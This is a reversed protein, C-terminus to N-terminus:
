PRHARLGSRRDRSTRDSPPPSSVSPLGPSPLSSPICRLSKRFIIAAVDATVWTDGTDEDMYRLEYYKATEATCLTYHKDAIANGIDLARIEGEGDGNVAGYFLFTGDATRQLKPLTYNGSERTIRINHTFSAEKFAVGEKFPTTIPLHKNEFAIM